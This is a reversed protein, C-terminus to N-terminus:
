HQSQDIFRPALVIDWTKVHVQTVLYPFILSISLDNQYYSGLFHVCKLHLKEIKLTKVNNQKLVIWSAKQAKLKWHTLSVTRQRM